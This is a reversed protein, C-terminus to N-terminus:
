YGNCLYSWQYTSSATLATGGSILIFVFNSSGGWAGAATTGPSNPSFTCVGFSPFPDAFTLTAITNNAAPSSGTTLSIVGAYDASGTLLSLAPGTGAGSGAVLTPTGGVPHAAKVEPGFLIIPYAGGGAGNTSLVRGIVQTPTPYVSGVDHCNGATTSSIQVYDGSTTSGDFICTAQGNEQITANGTIGCNAACIGVSGGTDTTSMEIAQSPANVLKTLTNLNTGGASTNSVCVYTGPGNVIGCGSSNFLPDNLTKNSLTDTTNRYVFTDSTNQGHQIVNGTPPPFDLTTQNGSAGLVIQSDTALITIPLTFTQAFTWTNAQNLLNLYGTINDTCWQLVLASSYACFKYSLNALWIGTQASGNSPSGTSDLPIPDPNQVTGTSDVYTNLLTTTGAAYTYLFGNALPQGTATLFQPHADPAITVEVQADAYCSCALLILVFTWISLRDTM